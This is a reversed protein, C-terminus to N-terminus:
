KKRMVLSISEAVVPDLRKLKDFYEQAIDRMDAETYAIVLGALADVHQPDILIAKSFESIASFVKGLYLLSYGLGNHYDAKNPALKVARSFYDHAESPKSMKMLASGYLWLLEANNPWKELGIDLLAMAETFQGKDILRKVIQILEKLSVREKPYDLKQEVAEKDFKKLGEREEKILDTERISLEKTSSGETYIKVIREELVYASLITADPYKNRIKKLLEKALVREKFKGLRVTYYGKVKEIRLHDLDNKEKLYRSLADYTREAPSLRKYSGIQITFFLENQSSYLNDTLLLFLVSFLFFRKM